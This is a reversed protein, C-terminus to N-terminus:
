AVPSRLHIHAVQEMFRHAQGLIRGAGARLRHAAIWCGGARVEIARTKEFCHPIHRAGHTVNRCGRVQLVPRVM